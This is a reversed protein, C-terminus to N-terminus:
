VFFRTTLLDDVRLVNLLPNGPYCEPSSVIVIVSFENLQKSACAVSALTLMCFVCFVCNFSKAIGAINLVFEPGKIYSVYICGPIYKAHEQWASDSTKWNELSVECHFSMTQDNKGSIFLLSICKNLNVFFHKGHLFCVKM